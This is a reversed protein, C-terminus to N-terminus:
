DLQQTIDVSPWIMDIMVVVAADGFCWLKISKQNWEAVHRADCGQIIICIM